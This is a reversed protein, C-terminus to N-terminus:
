AFDRRWINQGRENKGCYTYGHREIWRKMRKGYFKRNEMVMALGRPRPSEDEFERLFRWTEEAMFALLRISGRSTKGIFTRYLYYLDDTGPLNGKFVTNVGCVNGGEDRVVFVVQSVRRKARPPPLAREELWFRVIEEGTEPEVVGYVNEVSFRGFSKRYRSM